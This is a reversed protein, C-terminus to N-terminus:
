EEEEWEWDLLDIIVEETDMKFDDECISEFGQENVYFYDGLQLEKGEADRCSSEVARCVANREDEGLIVVELTGSKVYYKM